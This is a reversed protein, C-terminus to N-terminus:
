SSGVPLLSINEDRLLKLIPAAYWSPHRFEFSYRRKSSLLKVFSARRERDATFNPPLQFV